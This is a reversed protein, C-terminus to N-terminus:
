TDRACHYRAPDEPRPSKMQLYLLNNSNGSSTVFRGKVSHSYFITGCKPVHPLAVGAGERSGRVPGTCGTAAPPSGPPATPSASLTEPSKWMGEPNWWG